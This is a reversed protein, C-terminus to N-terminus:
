RREKDRKEDREEGMAEPVNEADTMFLVCLLFLFSLCRNFLSATV